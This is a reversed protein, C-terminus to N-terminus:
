NASLYATSAHVFEEVYRALPTFAAYEASEGSRSIVKACYSTVSDAYTNSVLVGDADKIEVVALEEMRNAPVQYAASYYGNNKELAIDTEAGNVWVKLTTVDVTPDVKMYFKLFLAEKTVLSTARINVLSGTGTKYSEDTYRDTYGADMVDVSYTVATTDNNHYANAAKGYDLLANAFAVFGADQSQAIVTDCAEAVSYEDNVSTATSQVYVTGSINKARIGSIIFFRYQVGDIEISSADLAIDEFDTGNLSYTFTPAAGALTTWATV